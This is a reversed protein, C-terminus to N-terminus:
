SKIKVLKLKELIKIYVWGLDFEFWRQSLKPNIPNTHHNNHLHDGVLFLGLPFILNRSNDKPTGNQYGWWHAFGTVVLASWLPMWCIQVLWAVLGLWGFLIVDVVLLLALGLYQKNYVNRELWDDPTGIGYIENVRQTDPYQYEYRYLLTQMFGGFAIKKIGFLVPSHPDGPVDTFRHHKRHQAVWNKINVGDTFWLWFRFFHEIIPHFKFLNHTLGRHLYLTSAISTLHTTLFLYILFNTNM